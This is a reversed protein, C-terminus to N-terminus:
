IKEAEPPQNIDKGCHPCYKVGQEEKERQLEAAFGSAIIGAPMAFLGIGLIAITGSLIKGLVTIPYVDGYGVTSLTVIGWWLASPISSFVEPQADKEVLYVVTSALVLIICGSFLTILLEEKKITIVRILKNLSKTYRGMKLLRFIRFLRIIRVFRLDLGHLPLYFPLFSILDIIAMPKLAYQIRGIIPSSYKPDETCSWIRLIYEITFIAISVIELTYFIPQYQSFLAEETELIVALVNVLILVSMFINFYREFDNDIRTEDLIDFIAKKLKGMMM